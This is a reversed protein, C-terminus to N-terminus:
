GDNFDELKSGLYCPIVRDAKIHKQCKDIFDGMDFSHSGKDKVTEKVTTGDAYVFLVNM